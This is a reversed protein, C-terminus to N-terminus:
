CLVIFLLMAMNEQWFKSRLMGLFILFSTYNSSADVEDILLVVKKDTMEILASIRESVGNLTKPIELDALKSALVPNVNKLAKITEILFMQGFAADSKLFQGDVGQFNLQIPLYNDSKELEKKILFLMTTKGFQRPRNIAFYKGRYVLDSIERLKQSNNMMYYLDVVCTGTTNFRKKM